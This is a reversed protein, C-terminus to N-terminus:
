TYISSCVLRNMRFSSYNGDKMKLNICLYSNTDSGESIIGSYIKIRGKSSIYNVHVSDIHCEIWEEDIDKSEDYYKWYFGGSTRHEERCAIAINGQNINLSDAADKVKDWIKIVNKNIDMQICKKGFRNWKNRNISQTSRSAWRLNQYNNNTPDRDIHDVTYCEESKGDVFLEAVLRHVYKNKRNGSDDTISIQNSGADNIYLKFIYGTSITRIRGLSSIEYKTFGLSSLNKWVEDM